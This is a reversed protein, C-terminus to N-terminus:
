NLKALEDKVFMELLPKDNTVMDEPITIKTGIGMREPILEPNAGLIKQWNGAKGTYWKSIIAVSEGKFKVTHTLDQESDAKKQGTDPIILVNHGSKQGSETKETNDDPSNGNEDSINFSRFVVFKGMTEYVEKAYRDSGGVYKYLAKKMDNHTEDLYIRLIRCGSDINTEIDHLDYKSKLGLKEGWVGFRVQMLGRAPDKKLQSIAYPNYGSEVDMVALVAVFPVGHEASKDLIHVAIQDAVTPPVTKRYKLIFAKIEDKAKNGVAELEKIRNAAKLVDNTLADVIKQKTELTELTHSLKQETIDAKDEFRNYKFIAFFFLGILLLTLICHGWDIRDRWDGWTRKEGPFSFDDYRGKMVSEGKL